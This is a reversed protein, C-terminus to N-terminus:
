QHPIGAEVSEEVRPRKNSLNQHTAASAAPRKQMGIVGQLNAALEQLPPRSSMSCVTQNYQLRYIDRQLFAEEDALIKSARTFADKTQPM